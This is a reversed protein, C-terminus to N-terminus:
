RTSTFYTQFLLGQSVTQNTGFFDLYKSMCTKLSFHLGQDSQRILTLAKQLKMQVKKTCKKMTFGFQKMELCDLHNDLTDWNEFNKQILVTRESETRINLNIRTDFHVSQM